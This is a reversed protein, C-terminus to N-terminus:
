PSVGALKAKWDAPRPARNAMDGDFPSTGGLPWTSIPRRKVGWSALGTVPLTTQMNLLVAMLATSTLSCPEPWRGRRVNLTCPVRKKLGVQTPAEEWRTSVTCLVERTGTANAHCSGGFSASTTDTHGAAPTSRPLSLVCTVQVKVGLLCFIYSWLTAHRSMSGGAPADLPAPSAPSSCSSRGDSCFLAAAAAAAAADASSSSSSSPGPAGSSDRCPVPVM